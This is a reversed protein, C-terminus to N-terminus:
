LTGGSNIPQRESYQAQPTADGSCARCTGNHRLHHPHKTEEGALGNREGEAERLQPIRLCRGTPRQRAPGLSPRVEVSRRRGVAEVHARDPQDANAGWTWPREEKQRRREPPAWLGESREGLIELDQQHQVVVIDPTEEKTTAADKRQRLSGGDAEQTALAAFAAM